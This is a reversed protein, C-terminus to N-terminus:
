KEIFLFCVNKKDIKQQKSNFSGYVIKIKRPPLVPSKTVHRDGSAVSYKVTTVFYESGAICIKRNNFFIIDIFFVSLPKYM